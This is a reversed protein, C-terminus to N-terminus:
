RSALGDSRRASDGGAARKNGFGDLASVTFSANDGSEVSVVGTGAATCRDRICMQRQRRISLHIDRHEEQTLFFFNFIGVKDSKM